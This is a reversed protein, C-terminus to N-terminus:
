DRRNNEGFFQHRLRLFGMLWMAFSVALMAGGVVFYWVVFANSSGYIEFVGALASGVTLTAVAFIHILNQWANKIHLKPFKMSIITPLAGLILPIAFLLIIPASYVQHSFAEYIASFVALFGSIALYKVLRKQLIQKNSM